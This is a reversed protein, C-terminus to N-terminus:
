KSTNWSKSKSNKWFKRSEEVNAGNRTIENLNKKPPSCKQDSNWYLVLYRYRFLTDSSLSVMLYRYQKAGSISVVTELSYIIISTLDREKHWAFFMKSPIKIYKCSHLNLLTVLVCFTEFRFKQVKPEKQEALHYIVIKTYKKRFKWFMLLNYSMKWYIAWIKGSTTWMSWRFNVLVTRWLKQFNASFNRLM